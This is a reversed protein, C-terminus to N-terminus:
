SGNIRDVALRISERRLGTDKVCKALTENPNDFLWRRVIKEHEQRRLEWHAGRNEKFKVM